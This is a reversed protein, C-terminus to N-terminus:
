IQASGKHPVLALNTERTAAKCRSSTSSWDRGLWPMWTLLLLETSGLDNTITKNRCESGLERAIRHPNIDTGEPRVLGTSTGSTQMFSARLAPTEESPDAVFQTTFAM